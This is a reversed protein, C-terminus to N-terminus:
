YLVVDVRQTGSAAVAYIPENPSDLEVVLEHGNDVQYGSSTDVGPGGIYVAASGRNNIYARSVGAMKPVITGASNGVNTRFTSVPSM